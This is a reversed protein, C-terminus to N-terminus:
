QADRYHALCWSRLRHKLEQHWVNFPKGTADSAYEKIEGSATALLRYLWRPTLVFAYKDAYCLRSPADFIVASAWRSHCFTFRHWDDGFLRGMINAGRNVHSRGFKENMDPKGWYGWDHVLVALWIRLDWTWGYLRIWGAAVFASHILVQHVGFLLSRTGLRM